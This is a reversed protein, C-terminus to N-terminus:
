INLMFHCVKYPHKPKPVKLTPCEMKSRKQYFFIRGSSQMEICSEDVFIIDSFTEKNALALLCWQVRLQRNKVSILQGYKRKTKTWGLQMRMKKVHSISIDLKFINKFRKQLARATFESNEQLWLQLFKYHFDKM